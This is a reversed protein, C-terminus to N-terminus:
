VTGFRNIRTDHGFGGKRRRIFVVLHTKGHKMGALMKLTNARFPRKEAHAPSYVADTISFTRVKATFEPKTGLYTKIGKPSIAWLHRIPDLTLAIKDSRIIKDAQKPTMEWNSILLMKRKNRYDQEDVLREYSMGNPFQLVFIGDPSLLPLVADIFKTPEKLHEILHRCYIFDYTKGQFLSHNAVDGCIVDELGQSRVEECACPDIDIYTAKGHGYHEFALSFFGGGGGIDLMKANHPLHFSQYWRDIQPSIVRNKVNENLKITFGNYYDAITEDSPMDAVFCTKCYHCQNITYGNLKYIKQTYQGCFICMKNKM